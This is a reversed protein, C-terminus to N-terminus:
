RRYVTFEMVLFVVYAALLVLGAIRHPGLFVVALLSVSSVWVTVLDFLVFTDSGDLHKGAVAVIGVCLTLLFINSGATTAVIIGGQGRFGSLMAILKEPLTTAFAIVTLGFVTGSLHLSDAITGASHALIYGSLSLALLGFILQLVHHYLPRRLKKGTDGLLPSTELAPPGASQGLTQEACVDTSEDDSESDSLQPLESIGRYIAYGISIIYLAFLAILLGGTVRNLQEFYALIVFLTTVFFQLASYIKASSDFPDGGPYCVLGLSFAGLINSIASGMVNGLALPTRGQLIAAIVVALEEYEAGATLLAILTPSIGLRQGVIVTHDIFKDAGYDLVFVGAILAATNFFLIDWDM